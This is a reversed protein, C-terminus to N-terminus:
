IHKNIISAVSVISERGRGDQIGESCREKEYRVNCGKKKLSDWVVQINVIIRLSIRFLM